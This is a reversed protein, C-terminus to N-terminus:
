AEVFVVIQYDSIEPVLAWTRGSENSITLERHEPEMYAKGFRTEPDLVGVRIDRTPVLRPMRQRQEWFRASGAVHHISSCWGRDDNWNILHAVVSGDPMEGAELLVSRPGDLVVIQSERQPALLIDVLRSMSAYGHKAYRIGLNAALYFATGRGFSNRTLGPEDTACRAPTMGYRNVGVPVLMEATTVAAQRISCDQQDDKVLLWNTRLPDSEAFQTNELVLFDCGKYGPGIYRVGLVDALGFDERSIGQNDYLSTEGTALLTGGNEVYARVAEM